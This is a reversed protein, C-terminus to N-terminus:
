CQRDATLLGCLPPPIVIADDSSQSRGGTTHTPRLEDDYTAWGDSWARHHLDVTHLARIADGSLRQALRADLISVGVVGRVDVASWLFSLGCLLPIKTTAVGGWRMELLTLNMWGVSQLGLSPSQPGIGKADRRRFFVM